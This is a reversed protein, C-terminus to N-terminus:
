NNNRNFLPRYLHWYGLAATVHALIIIAPLILNQQGPTLFIHVLLIQLSIPALIILMLAPAIGILLLLGCLTETLKLVPIFYGTATIANTFALLAAPLDPPAPFLNFLGAGGFVFFALGLVYRAIKPALKKM